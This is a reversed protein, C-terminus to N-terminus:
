LRCRPESSYVHTITALLRAFGSKGKRDERVRMGDGDEAADSGARLSGDREFSFEPQWM